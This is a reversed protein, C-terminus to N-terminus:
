KLPFNTLVKVPHAQFYIMLKQAILMLCYALKEILPYRAEADKLWRSVYYIPLQTGNEERILVLNFSFELVVMYIYLSEVNKPSFLMPQKELHNKLDLFAKKYGEGWDFNKIKKIVDFFPICKNTMRSIFRNLGEVRGNLSM